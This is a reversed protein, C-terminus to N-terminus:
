QNKGGGWKIEVVRTAVDVKIMTGSEFSREYKWRKGKVRAGAGGPSTPRGLERAYEPWWRTGNLEWSDISWNAYSFYSL